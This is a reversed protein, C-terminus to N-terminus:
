MERIMKVLYTNEKIIEKQSNGHRKRCLKFFSMKHCTYNSTQINQHKSHSIGVYMIVLILCTFVEIYVPPSFRSYANNTNDRYVIDSRM